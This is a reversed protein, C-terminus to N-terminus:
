IDLLGAVKATDALSIGCITFSWPLINILMYCTKAVYDYM